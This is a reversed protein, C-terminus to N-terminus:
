AASAAPHDQLRKKVFSEYDDLLKVRSDKKNLFAEYEAESMALYKIVTRRNMVLTQAITRYSLGQKQLRQVEYYMIWDGITKTDM